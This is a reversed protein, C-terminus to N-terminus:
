LLSPPLFFYFLGRGPEPPYVQRQKTGWLLRHLAFLVVVQGLHHALAGGDGPAGAAGVQGGGPEDQEGQQEQRLQEFVGEHDGDVVPQGVPRRVDDGGLGFGRSPVARHNLYSWRMQLVPWYYENQHQKVSSRHQTVSQKLPPQASRLGNWSWITRESVHGSAVLRHNRLVRLANRTHSANPHSDASLISSSGCLSCSAKFLKARLQQESSRM